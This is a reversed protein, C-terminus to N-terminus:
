RLPVGDLPMPRDPRIASGDRRAFVFPVSELKMGANRQIAFHLHPGSSYGTNGSEAIQEGMLVGNGPRVRISDLKLHAYVAMSGDEHLIRVVNAKSAYRQLDTGGRFFDDEVDMVVGDRAALVPTGIPMVIDVAYRSDDDTHTQQGNFGQSIPYRDGAPFPPLYQFSDLHEAGPWGPVFRSGIRFSWAANPNAAEMRVLVKEQREELVFRRPLPPHTRINDAEPLSVEVEMPGYLNNVFRYEPRADEGQRHMELLPRPEVEMPRSEVPQDTAPKKDSFHWVGDEDKWKYLQKASIAIALLVLIVLLLIKGVKRM